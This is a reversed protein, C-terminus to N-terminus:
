LGGVAEVGGDVEGREARRLNLSDHVLMHVLQACQDCPSSDLDRECRRRPRPQGCLAEIACKAGPWHSSRDLPGDLFRERSQEREPIHLVACLQYDIDFVVSRVQSNFTGLYVRRGHLDNSFPEQVFRTVVVDRETQPAPRRLHVAREARQRGFLALLDTVGYDPREIVNLAQKALMKWGFGLLPPGMWANTVIRM